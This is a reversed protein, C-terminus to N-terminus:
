STLYQNYINKLTLMLIVTAAADPMLILARAHERNGYCTARASDLTCWLYTCYTHM